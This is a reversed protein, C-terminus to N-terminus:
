NGKIDSGPFIIEILETIFPSRCKEHDGYVQSNNNLQKM